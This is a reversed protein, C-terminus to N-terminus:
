AYMIIICLMLTWLLVPFIMDFLIRQYFEAFREVKESECILNYLKM